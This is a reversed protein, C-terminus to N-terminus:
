LVSSAGIARQDSPSVARPTQDAPSRNQQWAHLILLAAGCVLLSDALNFNPWTYSGYRLLIWDRVQARFPVPMGPVYWLGLRDYLNGLIGALICGLAVTLVLDRIGNHRFVWYLIGATALVSMIAFLNGFGAGAGFLAGPNLATEIGVYGQILWWENHPRPLGRWAFVWHKTVLDAACGLTAIALFLGYRWVPVAAAEVRSSRAPASSM